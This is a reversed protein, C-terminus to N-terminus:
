RGLARLDKARNRLSTKEMLFGSPFNREIVLVLADIKAPDAAPNKLADDYAAKLKAPFVAVFENAVGTEVLRTAVAELNNAEMTLGLARLAPVLARMQPVKNETPNDLLAAYNTKAAAVDAPNAPAPAAPNAVPVQWCNLPKGQAQCVLAGAAEVNAAEPRNAARLQAALLGIQSPNVSAPNAAAQALLQQAQALLANVDGGPMPNPGPLPLPNPAPAPPAAKADSTHKVYLLAGVGVTLLVPYWFKEM